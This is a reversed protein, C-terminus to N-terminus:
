GIAWAATIAAMAQDAALASLSLRAAVLPAIRAASWSLALL